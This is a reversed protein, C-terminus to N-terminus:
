TGSAPPAVVTPAECELEKSDIWKTMIQPREEIETSMFAVRKQDSSLHAQSINFKEGSLLVRTCNKQPDLLMVQPRPKLSTTVTILLKEQGKAAGSVWQLDSITQAEIPVLIGAKITGTAVFLKQKKDPESVEQVWAFRNNLAIFDRHVSTAGAKSFDSLPTITKSKLHYKFIQKVNDKISTFYFEDDRTGTLRIQGDFGPHNTLRTIETGALDSLYLDSPPENNGNAEPKENKRILLPREKLEDTTSSYVIKEGDLVFQPDAADGDSYTIRHEKSESLDYEYIQANKHGSRNKSVFVM